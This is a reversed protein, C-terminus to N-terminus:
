KGWFDPRRIKAKSIPNRVTTMSSISHRTVTVGHQVMRSDRRDIGIGARTYVPTRGDLASFAARYDKVGPNRLRGTMGWLAVKDRYQRDTM